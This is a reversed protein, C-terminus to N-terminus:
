RSGASRSLRTHQPPTIAPTDSILILRNNINFSKIMNIIEQSHCTIYQMETLSSGDSRISMRPESAVYRIFLTPECINSLFRDCRRQYKRRIDPLQEQLSRHSNFDHFFEIGYRINKYHSPENKSQYLLSPELLKDFGNALCQEVGTWPSICWDFPSSCDRLGYRELEMATSCFYGLSICHAFQTM